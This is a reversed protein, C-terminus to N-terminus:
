MSLIQQMIEDDDDGNDPNNSDKDWREPNDFIYQAILEYARGNRIIHEFYNRQWLKKEFPHWGNQKVGNSYLYTTLSKFDRIIDNLSIEETLTIICHIHNPMVVYHELIVEPHKISLQLLETEVMKGAENILMQGNIVKGFLNHRNQLVMTVFYNAPTSYDYGKMRLTKRKPLEHKETMFHYSLKSIYPAQNKLHPFPRACSGVRRHGCTQLM